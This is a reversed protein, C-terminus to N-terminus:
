WKVVVVETIKVGFQKAAERTPFWIDIKHGNKPALRDEVVFIKDGYLRPFKVLAGFPFINSAITGDHVHTGSATIFPTNDTQDPTSSYATIVMYRKTKITISENSIDSKAILASSQVTALVEGLPMQALYTNGADPIDLTAIQGAWAYQPFVLAPAVGFLALISIIRM